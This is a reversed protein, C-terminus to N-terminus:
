AATRGAYKRAVARPIDGLRKIGRQRATEESLPIMDCRCNYDEVLAMLISHEPTGRRVVYGNVAWHEDRVRTDNTSALMDYPFAEGVEPRSLVEQKGRVYGAKVETRYLREVAARHGAIEGAAKERFTDFDDGERLSNAIAGRIARVVSGADIGPDAAYESFVADRQRKAIALLEADDLVGQDRVFEYAKEIWPFRYKDGPVPQGTGRIALSLAKPRAKAGSPTRKVSPRWISVLGLVSAAARADANLEEIVDLIARLREESGRGSYLQSVEDWFIDWYATLEGDAQAYMSEVTPIEEGGVSVTGAMSMGFRGFPNQAQQREQRAIQFAEALRTDFDPSLPLGAADFIQRINLCAVIPNLTGAAIISKALDVMLSDPVNLLDPYTLDFEPRAGLWNRETAADMVYRRFSKAWQQLVSSVLAMLVLRHIVALAYSGLDGTQQVSLESIGLARLVRVDSAAILADIPTPDNVMPSQIFEVPWRGQSDRTAPLYLLGGSQFGKLATDMAAAYDFEGGTVPDKGTRPGMMTGNHLAYKKVFTEWLNHLLQKRRRWEAEPAGLFLSRGHPEMVTARFALWWCVDPTLLAGEDEEAAAKFGPLRVNWKSRHDRTARWVRIGLFEGTQPDLEMRTNRFPLADLKRVYHLTLGADFDWTKHFAVRGKSLSEGMDELSDYWLTQLREAMALARPDRVPSRDAVTVMVPVAAIQAKIVSLAFAFQYDAEIAEVLDALDKPEPIALQARLAQFAEPAFWPAHGNVKQPVVPPRPFAGIRKPVYRRPIVAAM